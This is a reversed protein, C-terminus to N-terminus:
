LLALQGPARRRRTLEEAIADPVDAMVTRDRASLLWARSSCVDLGPLPLELLMRGFLVIQALPPSGDYIAVLHEDPTLAAALQHSAAPRRPETWIDEPTWLDPSYLHDFALMRLAHAIVADITKHAV